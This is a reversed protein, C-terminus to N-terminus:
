QQLFGSSQSGADTQIFLVGKQGNVVVLNLHIFSQQGITVVAGGFCRSDIKYAGTIKAGLFITGNDSGTESGNLTGDGHLNIQGGFVSPGSGAQGGGQLGYLGKVGASSCATASQSYANGSEATGNDTEVLEIQKGALIVSLSFNSPTGGAPRFTATGACSSQIKYSGLLAVSNTVSGNLSVTELGAINGNGDTSIQGVTTTPLGNATGNIVFGYNGTLSANSCSAASLPAPALLFASMLFLSPAIATGLRVLKPTM